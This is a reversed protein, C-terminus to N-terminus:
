KQCIRVVHGRMCSRDGEVISPGGTLSETKNWSIQHHEEIDRLPSGYITGSQEKRSISTGVLSSVKTYPLRHSHVYGITQFPCHRPFPYRERPPIMSSDVWPIMMTKKPPTGFIIIQSVVWILLLGSNEFEPNVDPLWVHRALFHVMSISSKDTIKRAMCWRYIM